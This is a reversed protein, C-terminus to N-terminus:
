VRGATHPESSCSVHTMSVWTFCRFKWLKYIHSLLLSNYRTFTSPTIGAASRWSAAMRVSSAPTSRSMNYITSIHINLYIPYTYMHLYTSSCLGHLLPARCHGISCHQLNTIITIYHPPSSIYTKLHLSKYTINNHSHIELKIYQLTIHHTDTLRWRDKNEM